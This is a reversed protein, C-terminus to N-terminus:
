ETEHKIRIVKNKLEYNQPVAYHWVSDGKENGPSRSFGLQEYFKEVIVNRATKFYYGVIQLMRRNRCEKVLEDFMALEMDRKFVRCSMIWSELHLDCGQLSAIIVSVIGNDGFKDTLRGYLAVYDKRAAIFEIEAYSYRKTTFNFQNTKNLLQAIRDLYMPKFKRIEAEMDLSILFDNYDSFRAQMEVRKINDSYLRAREIDEASIAVTEFYGAKDIMDILGNVNGEFEPTTIEPLQKRILEREVPNDDIFVVSDLGINLESAIDTLNADKSNWNARFLAFDESKLISDPHSFGEKATEHENKSCISLIVGRDKLTKVYRQFESYAEAVATETGIAIGELGDDGIVGGWLTNDLDLALCKKSKGYMAKIISALNHALLPIAEYSMAYKYLHWFKRDHWRHLGFWSSLYNIDNIYFNRATKAFRSFEMNLRMVYNVRGRADSFDRNGFVRFFPQEFNNQIVSCGYNKIVADWIGKYRSVEKELMESVDSESCSMDPFGAINECTTHIYIIDPGFAKLAMNEFVAEEYYRNFASEYFFPRIGSRLLFLELMERIEHTTSGGLVAIKKNPLNGQELLEKKIQRKKKLILFPDFPYDLPHSGM